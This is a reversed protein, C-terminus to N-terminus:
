NRIISGTNADLDLSIDIIPVKLQHAVFKPMFMDADSGMRRVCHNIYDKVSQIYPPKNSPYQYQVYASFPLGGDIFDDGIIAFLQLNLARIYRIMGLDFRVYLNQYLSLAIRPEKHNGIHNLTDILVYYFNIGYENMLELKNNLSDKKIKLAFQKLRGLDILKELYSTYAARYFCNGDGRTHRWFKVNRKELDNIKFPMLKSYQFEERLKSLPEMNYMAPINIELILKMFKYAKIFNLGIEKSHKDYIAHFDIRGNSYEAMNPSLVNWYLNGERIAYLDASNFDLVNRILGHIYEPYEFDWQM